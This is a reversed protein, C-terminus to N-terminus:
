ISQIQKTIKEALFTNFVEFAIRATSSAKIKVVTQVNKCCIAKCIYKRDLQEWLSVQSNCFHEHFSNHVLSMKAAM